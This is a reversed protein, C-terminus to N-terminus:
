KVLLISYFQCEGKKNRKINYPVRPLQAFVKQDHGQEEGEVNFRLVRMRGSEAVLLFSNSKSLWGELNNISIQHAGSPSDSGRLGYRALARVRGRHALSSARKTYPNYQLLRGSRDFPSRILADVNRRQFITSSDTFYVMGTNADIDLGNTFRFPVGEASTAIQKAVGGNPGVELLGFYADAIYLHCTATNFKLGLPRGCIPELNPNTSGNCFKRTRFPSPIAFEKCGLEPGQWKLVTGDSLGVYPGEGKM